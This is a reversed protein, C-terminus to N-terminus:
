YNMHSRYNNAASHESLAYSGGSFRIAGGNLRLGLVNNDQSSNELVIQRPINFGNDLGRHLPVPFGTGMSSTQTVHQDFCGMNKSGMEAFSEFQDEQQICPFYGRHASANVVLNARESNVGTNSGAAGPQIYNCSSSDLGHNEVLQKSLVTPLTLYPSSVVQDLPNSSYNPKKVSSRLRVGKDKKNLTITGTAEDHVEHNAHEDLVEYFNNSDAARNSKVSKELSRGNSNQTKKLTEISNQHQVLPVKQVCIDEKRTPRSATEVAVLKKMEERMCTFMNERAVKLEELISEMFIKLEDLSVPEHTICKNKKKNRDKFSGKKKKKKITNNKKSLGIHMKNAKGFEFHGGPNPEFQDEQQSGPSESTEDHKPLILNSVLKHKKFVPEGSFSSKSDDSSSDFNDDRRRFEWRQQFKQDHSM